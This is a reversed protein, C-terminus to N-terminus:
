LFLRFCHTLSVAYELIVVTGPDLVPALQTEVYTDFALGNM